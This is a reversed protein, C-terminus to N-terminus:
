PKTTHSNTCCHMHHQDQHEERHVRYSCHQTCTIKYLHVLCQVSCSCAFCCVCTPLAPSVVGAKYASHIALLHGLSTGLSGKTDSTDGECHGETPYGRITVANPGTLQQLRVEQLSSCDHSYVSNAQVAFHVLDMAAWAISCIQLQPM